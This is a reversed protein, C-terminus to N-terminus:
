IASNIRFAALNEKGRGLGKEIYQERLFNTIQNSTIEDGSVYKSIYFRDVKSLYKIAQEDPM